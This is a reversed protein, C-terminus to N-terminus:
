PLGKRIRDLLQNKVHEYKAINIEADGSTFVDISENIGEKSKDFIYFGDRTQSDYRIIILKFGKCLLYAALSTNQTSFENNNSGYEM